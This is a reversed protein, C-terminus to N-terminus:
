FLGMVDMGNGGAVNQGLKAGIGAAAFPAAPTFLAAIQAATGLGSMISGMPDHTVQTGTSDQKGTSTGTTSQGTFMGPNLGSLLSELQSQFQLPYQQKINDLATQQQGLQGQLAVNGRADASQASGLGTLLGAKQLAAAQNSTDAAQRRAADQGSLDTAQTYMQNLLGGETTARGRALNDETQAQAIGYRSGGFAGGRAAAAAQAARVTGSNADFDSLVPNLVQDKFPNYYQSLGTLLSQGGVNPVNKLADSAQGYAASPALGAANNNALTQLASPQPMFAAYGQGQLAGINGALSQAPAKLWDPVNPTTSGATTGASTQSQTTTTKKDSM